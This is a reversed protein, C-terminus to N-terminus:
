GRSGGEVVHKGLALAAVLLSFTVPMAWYGRRRNIAPVAEGPALKAERISAGVIGIMEVVLLAGLAALLTGLGPKMTHTALATAPLPISLVGQGRSGSASIRIQWSGTAMIWLHGSYFQVDQTPRRMVDPVPPHKSAEGTLPAPAITIRDLAGTEARV